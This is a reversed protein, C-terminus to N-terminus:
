ARHLLALTEPVADGAQDDGEDELARGWLYYNLVLAVAVVIAIVAIVVHHRQLGPLPANPRKMARAGQRCAAKGHDHERAVRQRPSRQQTAKGGLRWGQRFGGGQRQR